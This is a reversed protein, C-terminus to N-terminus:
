QVSVKQLKQAPSLLSTFFIYPQHSFARSHAATEIANWSGFSYFSLLRRRSPSLWFFHSTSFQHLVMPDPAHKKKFGTCLYNQTCYREWSMETWHQLYPSNKSLSSFHRPTDCSNSFSSRPTSIHIACTDPHHVIIDNFWHHESNAASWELQTTSRQFYYVNM